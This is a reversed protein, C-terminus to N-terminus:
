SCHSSPDADSILRMFSAVGMVTVMLRPHCADERITILKFYIPCYLNDQLLLLGM